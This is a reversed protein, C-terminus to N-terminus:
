PLISPTVPVHPLLVCEPDPHQPDPMDGPKCLSPSNGKCDRAGIQGTICQNIQCIDSQQALQPRASCNNGRCRALLRDHPYDVDIEAARLVDTGLIGDVEPQDPRLETRLAQLTPETDPVVLVAIGAPLPPTLELVAPVACFGTGDECPCDFPNISRDCQADSLQYTTLLHHAYMQRCPALANSTSVAVLALGDITAQRGTVLGSPLYVSAAPLADLAPSGPHVSVYRRYASEDLISIGLSTSVVLLADTGRQDQPKKPDPDPGLCAQLTLRRNGFALETHGIVLTGGGRYPSNFVTDCDLSRGRDSGGVDPLVFIQDDGLRLRVADGALVDAGIIAQFPRPTAGSGVNCPSPVCSADSPDCTDNCPHLAILQSEPFRARPVASDLDFAGGPSGGTDREGLLTLDVYSLMPDTTPKQDVVTFPSLLDLVAIHDETGAQRMGVLIAGSTTDVNIPFPDGSFDNTLFSDTILTCGGLAVAAMCAVAISGKEAISGKGETVM